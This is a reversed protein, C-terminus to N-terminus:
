ARLEKKSKALDTPKFVDQNVWYTFVRVQKSELGMQLLETKSKNALTLVIDASSLSIKMLKALTPKESLNYIAHISVVVRKKFFFKLSKAVFAANIGHAHVVVMNNRYRFLFPFSYVFLLPTLYIFELVPYPELKHFLNFGVWGIRHIELNRGSEFKPSKVKTTLPQYTIVFVKHGRKQLYGCLDDLHTEVGGVNPSFFPSLMLIKLSKSNM